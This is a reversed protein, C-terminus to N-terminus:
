LSDMEAKLSDIASQYNEADDPDDEIQEEYFTILDSFYETTPKAELQSWDSGSHKIVEAEFWEEAEEQSDASRFFVPNFDGLGTTSNRSGSSLELQYVDDDLTIKYDHGDYTLIEHMAQGSSLNHGYTESSDTHNFVTFM